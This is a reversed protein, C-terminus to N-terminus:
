GEVAMRIVKLTTETVPANGSAVFSRLEDTIFRAEADAITTRLIDKNPAARILAHVLATLLQHADALDALALNTKEDM